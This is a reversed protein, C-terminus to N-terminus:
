QKQMVLLTAKVVTKHCINEKELYLFLDTITKMSNGAVCSHHHLHVAYLDLSDYSNGRNNGVTNKIVLTMLILLIFIYCLICMICCRTKVTVRTKKASINCLAKYIM